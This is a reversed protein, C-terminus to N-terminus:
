IYQDMESFDLHIFSQRWIKLSIDLYKSILITNFQKSHTQKQILSISFFILSLSLRTCVFMGAFSLLYYQNTNLMLPEDSHSIYSYCIWKFKESNKVKLTKLSFFETGNVHMARSFVTEIITHNINIKSM